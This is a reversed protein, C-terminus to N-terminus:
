ARAMAAARQTVAAPRRVALAIGAAPIYVLPLMQVMQGPTDFPSLFSLIEAAGLIVGAWALWSPLARARMAAIALTGLFMGLIPWSLIYTGTQLDSLVILGQAELGHGASANIAFAAGFSVLALTTNAIAAALATTALLGHEDASRVAAWGVVAFVVLFLTSLVELGFGIWVGSPMPTSAIRAATEGSPLVQMPNPNASNGIVFGAIELFGCAVGSISGYRLLKGDSM